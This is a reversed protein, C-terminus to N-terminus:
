AQRGLFYAELSESKFVWKENSLFVGWENGSKLNIMVPGEFSKRAYWYACQDPGEWVEAVRPERVPESIPILQDADMFAGVTGDAPSFFHEGPAEAREYMAKGEKGALRKPRSDPATRVRQGPTLTPALRLLSPAIFAGMGGEVEIWCRVKRDDTLYKSATFVGTRGQFAGGIVEVRDRVKFEQEM